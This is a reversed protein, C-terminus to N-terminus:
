ESVASSKLDKLEFKKMRTLNAQRVDILDEKKEALFRPDREYGYNAAELMEGRSLHEAKTRLALYAEAAEATEWIVFHPHLARILQTYIQMHYTFHGFLNNFRVADMWLLIDNSLVISHIPVAGDHSLHGHKLFNYTENHVAMFEQLYEPRVYNSFSLPDVIGRRKHLDGIVTDAARVLIHTAYADEGNLTMRIAAHLIQRVGQEKNLLRDPVRSPDRQPKYKNRSM